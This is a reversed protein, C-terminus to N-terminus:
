ITYTQLDPLINYEIVIILQMYCVKFSACSPLFPFLRRCSNFQFSGPIWHICMRNDSSQLVFMSHAVGSTYEFLPFIRICYLSYLPWILCLFVHESLGFGMLAWMHPWTFPLFTLRLQGTLPVSQSTTNTSLIPTILIESYVHLWNLLKYM